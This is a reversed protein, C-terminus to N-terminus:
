LRHPTFILAGSFGYSDVCGPHARVGLRGGIEGVEDGRGFYWITSEDGSRSGIVGVKVLGASPPIRLREEGDVLFSLSVV